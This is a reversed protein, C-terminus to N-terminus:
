FLKEFRLTSKFFKAVATECLYLSRVRGIKKGEQSVRGTILTTQAIDTPATHQAALSLDQWLRVTQAACGCDVADLELWSQYEVYTGGFGAAANFKAKTFSDLYPRSESRRLRICELVVGHTLFFLVGLEQGYCWWINALQWFEKVTLNLLFNTVTM